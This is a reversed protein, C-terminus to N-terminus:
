LRYTSILQVIKPQAANIRLSQRLAAGARERADADRKKSLLWTNLENVGIGNWSPWHSADVRVAEQYAGLSKSYDKLRFWAWGIREYANANPEIRNLTEAADITERYRDAKALSNILNLILEPTPNILEMATRYEDIAENHMGLEDYVAGLNIRAHGNSPELQVAREAFVKASGPEGMEIYTIGINRNAEPSDPQIVLARQYARIADVHRGLMQLALGHKFQAEYNRPEVRAARGYAPEARVYDQQDMYIDGIGIHATTVTPNEALIERFIALAQEYEGVERLDHAQEIRTQQQPTPEHRATVLPPDSSGNMSDNTATRGCASIISLSAAAAATM